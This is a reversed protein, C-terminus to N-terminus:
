AQCSAIIKGLRELLAVTDGTRPFDEWLSGLVAAGGFGWTKLRRINEASVGGLAYVKRDLIGAALAETWDSDSFGSPYGSKSISDFVPSIFVYDCSKKMKRVEELSHCSASVRQWGAPVESWRRNLHLGQVPYRDTLDFCSHLRIKSLCPRGLGSLFKEIRSGSWEPKRLHVASVESQAAILDFAETENRCEEPSSIVVLNFM